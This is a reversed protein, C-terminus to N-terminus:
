QRERWLRLGKVGCLLIVMSVISLIVILSFSAKSYTDLLMWILLALMGALGTVIMILFLFRGTQRTTMGDQVYKKRGEPTRPYRLLNFAKM